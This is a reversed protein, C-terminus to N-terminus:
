IADPTYWVLVQTTDAAPRGDVPRYQSFGTLLAASSWNTETLDGDVVASSDFRPLAVGLRGGVGSHVEAAATGGPTSGAVSSVPRTTSGDRSQAVVSSSSFALSLYVALGTARAFHRYM